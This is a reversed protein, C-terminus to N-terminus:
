RAFEVAVVIASSASSGYMSANSLHCIWIFSFQRSNWVSTSRLASVTKSTSVFIFAKEWSSRTLPYKNQISSYKPPDESNARYSWFTVLVKFLTKSLNTYNPLCFKREVLGKCRQVNLVGMKNICKRPIKVPKTRQSM